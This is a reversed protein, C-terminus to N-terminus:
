ESELAITDADVAVTDDTNDVTCRIHDMDVATDATRDMDAAPWGAVGAGAVAGPVIAVVPGAGVAPGVETEYVAWPDAEPGFEPGAEPRHVTAVGVVHGIQQLQGIESCAAAVEVLCAMAIALEPELGAMVPKATDEIGIGIGVVVGSGWEIENVAVLVSAEADAVALAHVTDGDVSEVEPAEGAGAEVSVQQELEVDNVLEVQTVPGAEKGPEGGDEPSEPATEFVADMPAPLLQNDTKDAFEAEM